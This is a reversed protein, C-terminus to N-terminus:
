SCKSIRDLESVGTVRGSSATQDPSNVDNYFLDKFYVTAARKGPDRTQIRGPAHTDTQQSHQTKDPITRQSPGIGRGSSDQRTHHTQTHDPADTVRQVQLSYTSLHCVLFSLFIMIYTIHKRKPLEGADPNQYDVNRFGRDTGDEHVPPHLIVSGSEQWLGKLYLYVARGKGTM